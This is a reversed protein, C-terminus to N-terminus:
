SAACPWSYNSILLEKHGVRKSGKCNIARQVNVEKIRFDSYLARIFATDSNSLLLLCGRSNLKRFVEALQSQDRDDFGDTTYATFYSTNNLPQYPPDLYIFDGKQASEIADRYDGAFITARSLANSVNELNSSDCILPNKYKGPPVNFEGKGNVRYLGNFCTKNLAILRATIEVDSSSKITNRGNRLQNYYQKQQKSYPPYKKYEREYTQLLRMVGNVNDKVARYATILEANIDSLCANFRMGSSILHLFMAGGGLFPEFYRNFQSPIMKNLESLLQSKGGAWKVFPHVDPLDVFEAKVISM